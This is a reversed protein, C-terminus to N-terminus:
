GRQELLIKCVNQLISFDCHFSSTGELSTTGTPESSQILAKQSNELKQSM